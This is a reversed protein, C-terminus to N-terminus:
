TECKLLIGTASHVFACPSVVWVVVQPVCFVSQDLHFGGGGGQGSGGGGANGALPQVEAVVGLASANGFGDGGGGAEGELSGM